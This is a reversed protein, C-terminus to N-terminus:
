EVGTEDSKVGLVKGADGSSIVPLEAEPIDTLKAYNNKIYNLNNYLNAEEGSLSFAKAIRIANGFAICENLQDATGNSNFSLLIAQSGTDNGAFGDGCVFVPLYSSSKYNSFTM